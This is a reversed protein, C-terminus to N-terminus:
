FAVLVSGFWISKLGLANELHAVSVLHFLQLYSVYKILLFYHIFALNIIQNVM